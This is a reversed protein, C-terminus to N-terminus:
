RRNSQRRQVIDAPRRAGALDDLLHRVDCVQVVDARGRRILGGDGLRKAEGLAVEIAEPGEKEVLPIAEHLREDRTSEFGADRSAGIVDHRIVSLMMRPLRILLCPIGQDIADADATDGAGRKEAAIRRRPEQSEAECQLILVEILRAICESFEAM